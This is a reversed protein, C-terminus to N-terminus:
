VTRKITREKKLVITEVIKMLLVIFFILVLGGVGLGRM